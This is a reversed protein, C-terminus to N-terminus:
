RVLKNLGISGSGPKMLSYRCKTRGLIILIEQDVVPVNVMRRLNDVGARENRCRSKGGFILWRVIVERRGSLRSRWWFEVLRVPPSTMFRGRQASSKAVM